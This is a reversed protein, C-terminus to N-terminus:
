GKLAQSVKDLDDQTNESKSGSIKEILGILLVSLREIKRMLYDKSQQM